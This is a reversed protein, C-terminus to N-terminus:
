KAIGGTIHGALRAAKKWGKRDFGEAPSRGLTAAVV